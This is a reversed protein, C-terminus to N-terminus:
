PNLTQLWSFFFLSRLLEQLRQSECELEILSQYGGSQLVILFCRNNIRSQRQELTRSLILVPFILAFKRQWWESYNVCSSSYSSPLPTTCNTTQLKFLSRWRARTLLKGFIRWKVRTNFRKLRRPWLGSSLSRVTTVNCSTDLYHRLSRWIDHWYYTSHM